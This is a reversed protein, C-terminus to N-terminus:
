QTARADQLRHWVWGPKYGRARAVLRLRGEDTGAWRLAQPYTMSAVKVEVLATPPLEEYTPKVRLTAGCEKCVWAALTNIAGCENCRRVTDKDQQKKERGELSWARNADPLGHQHANGAHDLIFARPKGPRLGRGCQQLYLALSKTPRLMIIATVAPVDVGESILGCNTVVQIEGSALGAIIARRVNPDTNGDLHAARFGRAKFREAVIESHGIDVCFVIAPVGPCRKVYEDVAANVIIPKTMVGSLQDIAYDGGRSRVGYLDPSQEPAFAIFESLFGAKILEATSPGLVLTDFIDKLGKGDLREPTATVGLIRADPHATIIKRWTGAVAHHAEDIVLLDFPGYKASRRALTAVSAVYVSTEFTEERGAAILGHPVGFRFLSEDIQDVIEQRHGLICVRKGRAVANSVVYSFLVTKGSGTPATYLVRLAGRAFEGRIRAVGDDQYARLIPTETM